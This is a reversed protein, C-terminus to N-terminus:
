YTAKRLIVLEDTVWNYFWRSIHASAQRFFYNLATEVLKVKKFAQTM